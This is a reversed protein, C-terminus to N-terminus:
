QNLLELMEDDSIKEGLLFNEYLKQPNVIVIGVQNVSDTNNIGSSKTDIKWDKLLNEVFTFEGCTVYGIKEFFKNDIKTMDFKRYEPLLFINHYNIKVDDGACSQIYRKIERLYAIQKVIDSNSPYGQIQGRKKDDDFFIRDLTYYKSDLVFIHKGNQQTNVTRITDPQADGTGIYDNGGLHYVPPKSINNQKNTNGWVADNVSEWVLEFSTTCGILRYNKSKEACWAALMKFLEIERQMFVNSLQSLIYGEYKSLDDNFHLTCEPLKVDRVLDFKKVVDYCQRVIKKHLETLISNKEFVARKNVTNYVPADDSIFPRNKNVTNGWLTKGKSFKGIHTQSEVYIGNQCYDIIIAKALSVADIYKQTPYYKSSDFEYRLSDKPRAKEIVKSVMILKDIDNQGINDFDVAMYKPFCYVSIGNNMTYIGVLQLAESKFFEPRKYYLDLYNDNNNTYKEGERLYICNRDM